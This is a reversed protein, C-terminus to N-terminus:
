LSLELGPRYLLIVQTQLRWVWMLSVHLPDTIRVRWGSLFWPHPFHPVALRANPASVWLGEEFWPFTFILLWPQGRSEVYVGHCMCAWTYVYMCWPVCMGMHVCVCWPVYIGMHIFVYGIDCVHGHTCVCVCVSYFFQTQIDCLPSWKEKVCLIKACMCMQFFSIVLHVWALVHIPGVGCLVILWFHGVSTFWIAVAIVAM